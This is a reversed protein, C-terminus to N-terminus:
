LEWYSKFFKEAVLM